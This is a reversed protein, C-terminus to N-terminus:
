RIIVRFRIRATDGPNFPQLPTDIQIYSSDGSMIFQTHDGDNTDTQTVYRHRTDLEVNSTLKTGKYDTYSPIFDILRFNYAPSYGETNSVDIRYWLSAGPITDSTDGKLTVSETFKKVFIFEAGISDGYSSFQERINDWTDIASIYWVYYTDTRPAGVHTDIYQMLGLSASYVENDALSDKGQGRRVNSDVHIFFETDNPPWGTDRWIQFYKAYSDARWQIRVTDTQDPRAVPTDVPDPLVTRIGLFSLTTDGRYVGTARDWVRIRIRTNPVITDPVDARVNWRVRYITGPYGATLAPTSDNNQLGPGRNQIGSSDFYFTLSDYTGDAYTDYEIVTTCVSSNSFQLRFEMVARRGGVTDNYGPTRIDVTDNPDIYEYGTDVRSLLGRTDPSTDYNGANDAWLVRWFLTDFASDQYNAGIISIDIRAYYTDTTGVRIMTEGGVPYWQGRSQSDFTWQLRPTDYFAASGYTRRLGSFSDSLGVYVLLDTESNSFTINTESKQFLYGLSDGRDFIVYATDPVGYPVRCRITVTGSFNNSNTSVQIYSTGYQNTSDTPTLLIQFSSDGIAGYNTQGADVVASFGVGQNSQTDGSAIKLTFNIRATDISPDTMGDDKGLYTDLKDFFKSTVRALSQANPRRPSAKSDSGVTSDSTGWASSLTGSRNSYLREMADDATGADNSGGFWDGSGTANTHEDVKGSARFLILSTDTTTLNTGLSALDVSDGPSRGTGDILLYSFPDLSRVGFTSTSVVVNLTSDTPSAIGRTIAYGELSQVQHTPNYLEIWDTAAAAGAWMVESIVPVPNRVSDTFVHTEPTGAQPDFDTDRMFIVNAGETESVNVTFVFQGSGNTWGYRSQTDSGQTQYYGTFSSYDSLRPYMTDQTNSRDETSAYIHAGHVPRSLSDSVTWTLEYQSNIFSQPNGSPNTDVVYTDLHVVVISDARVGFNKSFSDGAGPAYTTGDTDFFIQFNVNGPDQQIQAPANRSLANDGYRVTISASAPFSNFRILGSRGTTSITSYDSGGAQSVFTLYGSETSTTGMSSWDNPPQIVIRGNSSAFAVNGNTITIDFEGRGRAQVVSQPSISTVNPSNVSNIHGPTGHPQGGNGFRRTHSDWSSATSGSTVITGTYKLLGGSTTLLREMACQGFSGSGGTLGGAPWGSNFNVTDMEISDGNTAKKLLVISDGADKLDDSNWLEGVANSVEETDHSGPDDIAIEGSGTGSRAQLVVFYDQARITANSRFECRFRDAAGEDDTMETLVFGALNIDTATTNFLEIYESDGGQDDWMVESIIVDGPGVVEITVTGPDDRNYAPSSLSSRMVDTGNALDDKCMFWFGVKTDVSLNGFPITARIVWTGSGNDSETTSTTFNINTGSDVHWLVTCSGTGDLKSGTDVLYFEVTQDTNSIVDSNSLLTDTIATIKPPTVDYVIQITDAHSTFYTDITKGGGYRVLSAMITEGDNERMTMTIRWVGTDTHFARTSSDTNNIRFRVTDSNETWSAPGDNPSSDGSSLGTIVITANTTEHRNSSTVNEAGSVPTSVVLSDGPSTLEITTFGTCYGDYLYITALGATAGTVSITIGSNGQLKGNSFTSDSSLGSVTRGAGGADTCVIDSWALSGTYATAVSDPYDTGEWSTTSRKGFNIAATCYLTFNSGVEVSGIPATCFFKMRDTFGRKSNMYGPVQTFSRTDQVLDSLGPRDIMGGGWGVPSDANSGGTWNLLVAPNRYIFESDNWTSTPSTERFEGHHYGTGFGWFDVLNGPLETGLYLAITEAGSPNFADTASDGYEAGTQGDVVFFYGFAGITDTSGFTNIGGAENAADGYLRYGNLNIESSTPNYLIVGESGTVGRIANIAGFITVTDQIMKGASPTPIACLGIMFTFIWIYIPRVFPAGRATSCASVILAHDTSDKNAIWSGFDCM